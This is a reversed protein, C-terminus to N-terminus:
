LEKAGILYGPNKFVNWVVNSKKYVSYSTNRSLYPTVGNGIHRWPCSWILAILRRVPSWGLKVGFLGGGSGKADGTKEIPHNGRGVSEVLGGDQLISVLGLGVVPAGKYGLVM